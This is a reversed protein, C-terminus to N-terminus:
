SATVKVNSDAKAIDATTVVKKVEDLKATASIQNDAKKNWVGWFWVVLGAVVPVMQGWLDAPLLGGGVVWGTALMLLSRVTSGIMQENM